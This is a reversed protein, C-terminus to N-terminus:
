WPRPGLFFISGLPSSLGGNKGPLLSHLPSLRKCARSKKLERGEYLFLFPFNPPFSLLPPFGSEGERQLPPFFARFDKRRVDPASFFPCLHLFPLFLSFSSLVERRKHVHSFSFAARSGFGSFRFSPFFVVRFPFSPVADSENKEFLQKQFCAEDTPFYQSALSPPPPPCLLFIKMM